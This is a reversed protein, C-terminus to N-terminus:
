LHTLQLGPFRTEGTSSGTHAPHFNENEQQAWPIGPCCSKEWTHQQEREVEGWQTTVGLAGSSQMSCTCDCRMEM